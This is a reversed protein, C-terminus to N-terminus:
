GHSPAGIAEPRPPMWFRYFVTTPSPSPLLVLMGITNIFCTSLLTDTASMFTPLPAYPAPIQVAVADHGARRVHAAAFQDAPAVTLLFARQGRCSERVVAVEARQATAAQVAASLQEAKCFAAQAARKRRQARAAAAAEAEAEHLSEWSVASTKLTRETVDLADLDEFGGLAEGPKYGGYTMELEFAMLEPDEPFSNNVYNADADAAQEQEDQGLTPDAQIEGFM